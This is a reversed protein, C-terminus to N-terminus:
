IFPYVLFIQVFLLMNPMKVPPLMVKQTKFSAGYDAIHNQSFQMDASFRTRLKYAHEGDILNCSKKFNLIEFNIEPIINMQQM